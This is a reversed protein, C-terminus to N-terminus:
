AGLNGTELPEVGGSRGFPRALYSRRSIVEVLSRIEDRGLAAGAGAGGIGGPGRRGRTTWVTPKM